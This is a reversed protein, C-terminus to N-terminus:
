DTLAETTSIGATWLYGNFLSDAPAPYRLVVRNGAGAFEAAGGDDVWGSSEGKDDDLVCGFGTTGHTANANHGSHRLIAWVEFDADPYSAVNGNALVFNGSDTEVVFCFDVADALDVGLDSQIDDEDVYDNGAADTYTGSRNFRTRLATAIRELYPKAQTVRSDIMMNRIGGFSIGALIGIIAMVVMLEILTFGRARRANGRLSHM